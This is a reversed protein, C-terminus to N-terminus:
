FKNRLRQRETKLCPFSMLYLYNEYDTKLKSIDASAKKFESSDIDATKKWWEYGTSKM